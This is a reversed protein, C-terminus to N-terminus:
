ESLLQGYPTLDAKEARGGIQENCRRIIAEADTEPWEFLGDESTVVPKELHLAAPASRAEFRRPDMSQYLHQTEKIKGRPAIVAGDAVYQSCRGDVHILHTPAMNGEAANYVGLEESLVAALRAYQEANVSETLPFVVTISPEGKRSLSDMIIHAYGLDTAKTHLALAIEAGNDKTRYELVIATATQWYEKTNNTAKTGRWESFSWAVPEGAHNAMQRILGTMYSQIGACNYGANPDLCAKYTDAYSYSRPNAYFRTLTISIM